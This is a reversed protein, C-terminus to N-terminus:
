KKDAAKATSKSGGKSARLAALRAKRGARTEGAMLKKGVPTNAKHNNEDSTDDSSSSSAESDTSSASSLERENVHEVDLLADEDDDDGSAEVAAQFQQEISEEKKEMDDALLGTKLEGKYDKIHREFCKSRKLLNNKFKWCARHTRARLDNLHNQRHPKFLNWNRKFCSYRKKASSHGKCKDMANMYRARVNPDKVRRYYSAKMYEKQDPAEPEVLGNDLQVLVYEEHAMVAALSAALLHFRM